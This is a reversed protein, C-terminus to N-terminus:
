VEYSAPFATLTTPFATFNGFIDSFNGGTFRNHSLYIPYKLQFIKENEFVDFFYKFGTEPKVVGQEGRIYARSWDPVHPFSPSEM